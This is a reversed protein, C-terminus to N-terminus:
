SFINISCTMVRELRIQNGYHPGVLFGSSDGQRRVWVSSATTDDTWRCINM